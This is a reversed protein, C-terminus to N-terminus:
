LYPARLPIDKYKYYFCTFLCGSVSRSDKLCVVPSVSTSCPLRAWYLRRGWGFDLGSHGAHWDLAYRQDLTSRKEWCPLKMANLVGDTVATMILSVIFHVSYLM